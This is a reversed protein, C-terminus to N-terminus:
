FVVTEIITQTLTTLLETNKDHAEKDGDDDNNGDSLSFDDIQIYRVINYTAAPYNRSSSANDPYFLFLEHTPDDLIWWAPTSPTYSNDDIIHIAIGDNSTIDFYCMYKATPYNVDLIQDQVVGVWHTSGYKHSQHSFYADTFFGGSWSFWDLGNIQAAFIVSMDYYILQCDCFVYIIEFTANALPTPTIDSIDGTVKFAVLVAGANAGTTGEVQTITPTAEYDSRYSTGDNFYIVGASVENVKGIQVDGGSVRTWINQISGGMSYDIEVRYYTDQVIKYDNAAPSDATVTLDSTYGPAGLDVSGFYVTFYTKSSTDDNLFCVADHNGGDWSQDITQSNIETGVETADVHEYVRVYNTWVAGTPIGTWGSMDVIILNKIRTVSADTLYIQRRYRTGVLWPKSSGIFGTINKKLGNKVIDIGM